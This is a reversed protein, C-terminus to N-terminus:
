LVGAVVQAVRAMQGIGVHMHPAVRVCNNRLTVVIGASELAQAVADARGPPLLMGCIHPAHGATRLGDLDRAHLADDLADTRLKLQAAIQPVGWGLVQRLGAEAMALRMADCVGGADYRRAGPLPAVQANNGPQWLADCDHAMWGHELPQGNDRWQPAAWLWALGHGGLLWKYGVSVIFDPQWADLRVPLVGLSQSLDLVLSAKRAHAHAAIRDMDLLAGDRWHVQPLALVRIETDADLAALVANTWDQGDDRRVITLRAGTEKCRQRWPLLNSPFQDDLVLVSQGPWLPVNRAAIALGYAASPVFAVADADGDFLGAALARLREVDDRWRAGFWSTTSRQLAAAAAERVARLPPGHAASDLYLMDKPLAFLANAASGSTQTSPMACKLGGPNM